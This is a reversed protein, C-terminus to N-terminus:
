NFPQLLFQSRYSSRSASECLNACIRAVRKSSRVGRCRLGVTSCILVSSSQVPPPARRCALRALCNISASRRPGNIGMSHRRDRCRSSTAPSIGKIARSRRRGRSRPFTRTRSHVHMHIKKSKFIIAPMQAGRPPASRPPFLASARKAKLRVINPRTSTPEGNNPPRSELVAPNDSPPPLSAASGGASSKLTRNSIRATSKGLLNRELASSPFASQNHMTRRPAAHPPTPFNMM